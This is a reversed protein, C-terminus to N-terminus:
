APETDAIELVFTKQGIKMRTTRLGDPSDHGQCGCLLWAASAVVLPLLIGKVPSVCLRRSLLSVGCIFVSPRLHLDLCFVHKRRRNFSDTVVSRGGASAPSGAFVTAHGIPHAIMEADCKM